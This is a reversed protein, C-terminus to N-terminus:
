GNGWAERAAKARRLDGVTVEVSRYIEDRYDPPFPIAAFPELAADKAALSESLERAKKNWFRWLSEDKDNALATELEKVRQEAAEARKKWDETEYVSPMKM